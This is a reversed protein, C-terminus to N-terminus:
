KVNTTQYCTILEKISEINKNIQPVKIDEDKATIIMKSLLRADYIDMKNRHGIVKAFNANKKPNVIFCNINKNSCFKTLLYSYTGTPEYVFVINKIDKEFILMM